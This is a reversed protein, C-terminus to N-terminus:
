AAREVLAPLTLADALREKSVAVDSWGAVARLGLVDGYTELHRRIMRASARLMEAEYEPGTVVLQEM